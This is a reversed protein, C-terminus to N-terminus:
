RIGDGDTGGAISYGPIEQMNPVLGEAASCDASDGRSGRVCALGWVRGPSTVFYFRGGHPVLVTFFRFLPPAQAPEAAKGAANTFITDGIGFEM